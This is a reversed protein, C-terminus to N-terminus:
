NQAEDDLSIKGKSSIEIEVHSDAVKEYNMDISYDIAVKINDEDYYHVALGFVEDDSMCVANGGRKRAEGIIYNCCEDINKGEKAYSKAFLEDKKAQNDLYSQIAEKLPNQKSM